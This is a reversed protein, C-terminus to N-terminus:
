DDKHLFHFKDWEQRPGPEHWLEISDIASVTNNSLITKSKQTYIHEFFMILKKMNALVLFGILALLYNM